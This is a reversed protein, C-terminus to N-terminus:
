LIKACVLLQDAHSCHFVSGLFRTRLSGLKPRLLESDGDRNDSGADFLIGLSLGLTEVSRRWVADNPRWRFSYPTRGFKGDVLCLWDVPLCIWRNRLGRVSDRDVCYALSEKEISRRRTRQARVETGETNINQRETTKM